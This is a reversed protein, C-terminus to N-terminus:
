EVEWTIFKILPKQEEQIRNIMDQINDFGLDDALEIIIKSM